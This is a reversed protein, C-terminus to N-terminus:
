KVNTKILYNECDDFLEQMEPYVAVKKAEILPLWKYDQHENSLMIPTDPNILRALWYTVQKSFPKDKPDYKLVKEFNHDISLDEVKIGAEEGTERIAADMNSENEELHGKPPTWHHNAYSAQMLLYEIIENYNKRYIVFGAAKRVTKPM